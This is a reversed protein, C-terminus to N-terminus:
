IVKCRKEVTQYMYGSGNAKYGAKWVQAQVPDLTVRLDHWADLSLIQIDYEIWETVEEGIGTTLGLDINKQKASEM